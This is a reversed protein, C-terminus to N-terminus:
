NFTLTFYKVILIDQNIYVKSVQFRFNMGFNYLYKTPNDFFINTLHIDDRVGALSRGSTFAISKFCSYSLTRSTSGM